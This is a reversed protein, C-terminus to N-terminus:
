PQPSAPQPAGARDSLAPAADPANAFDATLFGERCRTKERWKDRFEKTFDDYLKQRKESILIQKIAGAAQARTQQSGEKIGTVEFVYHGFQTKMPGTLKGKAAGFIADDLAKEQQGQTIGTLKGGQKKTTTDVSFRKAVRKWSAGRALAAKARGAKAATRALVIRVDRTEPQAFQERNRNYYDTVQRESVKDAGKTVQEQLKTTLMDVRVRLLVDAESQGSEELFKAYQKRKPFSQKRLMDFRKEVEADSVAIGRERAEAELWRSSVLLGLVQDRLGDYEEQCQQRAESDTLKPQGEVPKTSQKAKVCAAYDPPKPIAEQPRGSTKAAINMWHEFSGQDIVQGDVTAVAGGPLEESGCGATALAAALLAILAFRLL